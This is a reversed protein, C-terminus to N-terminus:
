RMLRRTATASGAPETCGASYVVMVGSAKASMKRVTIPAAVGSSKAARPSSTTSFDPTRLRPTSPMIIRPAIEAKATATEVPEPTSPTRTPASAPMAMAKMKPTSVRVSAALWTAVPSASVM